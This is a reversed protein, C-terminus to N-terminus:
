SGAGAWGRVRRLAARVGEILGAVLLGFVALVIVGAAICGMIIGHFVCFQAFSDFVDGRKDVM